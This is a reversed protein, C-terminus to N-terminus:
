NPFFNDLEEKLLQIREDYDNRFNNRIMDSLEKRNQARKNSVSIIWEKESKARLFPTRLIFYWGIRKHPKLPVPPLYYLLIKSNPKITRELKEMYEKTRDSVLFIVNYNKIIKFSKKHKYSKNFIKINDFESKEARNKAKKYRSKKTEFGASKSVWQRAHISLHGYGCGLDCFSDRESAKIENLLRTLEGKRTGDAEGRWDKSM